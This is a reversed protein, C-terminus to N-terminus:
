PRNGRPAGVPAVKLTVNKVEDRITGDAWDDCKYHEVAPYKAGHPHPVFRCRDGSKYTM